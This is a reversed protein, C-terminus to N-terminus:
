PRPRSTRRPATALWARSAGVSPTGSFWLSSTLGTRASRLMRTLQRRRMGFEDVARVVLSRINAYRKGSVGLATPGLNQFIRRVAPGSAPTLALDIGGRSAVVNFASLTDARASGSEHEAVKDRVHALTLIGEPRVPDLGPFHLSLQM